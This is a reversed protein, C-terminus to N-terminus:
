SALAAASGTGYEQGALLTAIIINHGCMEGAQYIYDDGRDMAFRGVHKRDLMHQAAQVEIELPAIWAIRYDDPQLTAM